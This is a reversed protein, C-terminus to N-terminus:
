RNVLLFLKHYTGKYYYTYLITFLINNMTCQLIAIKQIKHRIVIRALDGVLSTSHSTSGINVM